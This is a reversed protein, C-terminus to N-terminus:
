LLASTVSYTYPEVFFLNASEPSSTRVNSTLFQEMFQLDLLSVCDGDLSSANRLKKHGKRMSVKRCRLPWPCHQGLNCPGKVCFWVHSCQARLGFWVAAGLVCALDCSTGRCAPWAERRVLMYAAYLGSGGEEERPEALQEEVPYALHTPLEYLFIKLQLPSPRSPAPAASGDRVCGHRCPARPTAAHRGLM